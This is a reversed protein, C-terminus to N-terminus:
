NHHPKLIADASWMTFNNKPYPPIAPISLHQIQLRGLTARFAALLAM